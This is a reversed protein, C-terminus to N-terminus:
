WAYDTLKEDTKMKGLSHYSKRLEMLRTMFMILLALSLLYTSKEESILPKYPILFNDSPFVSIFLSTIVPSFIVLLLYTLTVNLKRNYPLYEQRQTTFIKKRLCAFSLVLYSLGWILPAYSYLTMDPNRASKIYLVVSILFSLFFIFRGPLHSRPCGTIQRQYQFIMPIYLINFAASVVYQHDQIINDAEMFITHASHLIFIGLMTSVTILEKTSRPFSGIYLLAIAGTLTVLIPLIM